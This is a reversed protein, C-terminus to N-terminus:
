ASTAPATAPSGSARPRAPARRAKPPSGEDRPREPLSIETASAAFRMIAPASPKPDLALELPEDDAIWSAVIRVEDVEDAPVVTRGPPRALAAETREVLESHAPLPGWDVLRGRVLWFADFRDKAPHRVLVLRPAAHTARLVGELRELVWALRERRRLLAAAREYRHETSAERMRRDLEGLLADGAGPREFHALALDVQRRYANPDLDGLCPSVCRGM